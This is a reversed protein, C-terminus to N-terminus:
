EPKWWVIRWLIQVDFINLLIVKHKEERVNKQVKQGQDIQDPDFGPISKSRCDKDIRFELREWRSLLYTIFISWSSCITCQIVAIKFDM